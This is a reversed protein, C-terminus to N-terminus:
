LKFFAVLEKLLDAQSNLEEAAAATQESVASNSQVVSSIEGLNASVKNVAQAQESSSESISGTIALLENANGLIIGLAEATSQAIKSGMNVRNVSEEILEATEEVAKQSRIALSRVEDAVVAFGRGHEGARAAEVSANLALLDTQFAVDEITKVIQSINKSSENISQMAELMEEMAKNGTIASESSKASISTAEIASDANHTTKENIKGISESLEQVSAAQSNAGSALDLASSAIQRAGDLVHASSAAIESMTRNLNESIDNISDKITAFDGVYERDIHVTLDGKSVYELNRTIEDIYSSLVTATENMLDKIVAYDGRYDAKIRHRMNGNAMERMSATIEKYPAALVQVLENLEAAIEQWGGRYGSADIRYSLRGEKTAKALSLIRESVDSLSSKLTDIADNAVAREGPMPPLEADFNGEAFAEICGLIDSYDEDMQKTFQEVQQALEKYCGEFQGAPIKYTVGQGYKAIKHSIEDQLKNITACVENVSDALHMIEAKAKVEVPNLMCVNCGEAVKSMHGTLKIIPNAIKRVYFVCAALVILAFAANILIINRMISGVRGATYNEAVNVANDALGFYNQSAAFLADPEAGARVEHILGQLARWNTQVTQMAANFEAYSIHALGNPGEGTLLENVIGDLRNMLGDNPEGMIESVVLRQTGGRVTGAYNIVRAYEQITLISMVSFITVVALLVILLGFLAYERKLAKFNM